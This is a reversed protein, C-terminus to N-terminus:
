MQVEIDGVTPERPLTGTRRHTLLERLDPTVSSAIHERVRWLRKRGVKLLRSPFLLVFVAASNAQALCSVRGTALARQEVTCSQTLDSGVSVPVGPLYAGGITATFTARDTRSEAYAHLSVRVSLLPSVDPAKAWYLDAATLLFAIGSIPAAGSLTGRWSLDIVDACPGSGTGFQDDSKYTRRLPKAWEGSLTVPEPPVCDRLDADLRDLLLHRRM